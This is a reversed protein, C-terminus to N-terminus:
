WGLVRLTLYTDQVGSTVQTGDSTLYQKITVTHDSNVAQHFIHTAKSTQTIDAAIVGNFYQSIDLINGASKNNDTIRVNLVLERLSSNANDKVRGSVDSYRQFNPNKTIIIAM